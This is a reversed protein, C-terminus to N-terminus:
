GGLGQDVRGDLADLVLTDTSRRAATRRSGLRRATFHAVLKRAAGFRKGYGHAVLVTRWRARQAEYYISISGAGFSRGGITAAWGRPEVM